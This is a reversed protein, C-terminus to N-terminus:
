FYFLLLLLLSLLMGARAKMLAALDEQHQMLIAQSLDVLFKMRRPHEANMERGIRLMLHMADLKVKFTSCCRTMTSTTSARRSSSTATHLVGNCCACDTYLFQPIPVDASEHCEQVESMAKETWSLSTDPVVYVGCVLGFDGCITFTQGGSSILSEGLTRKVVKLQHDIVLGHRSLTSRLERMIYPKHLWYDKIFMSTIHHRHPIYHRPFPPYSDTSVVNVKGIGHWSGVQLFM